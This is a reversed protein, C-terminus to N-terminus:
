KQEGKSIGARMSVGTGAVLVSLVVSYTQPAILDFSNLLGLIGILVMGIYTKRGKLKWKM